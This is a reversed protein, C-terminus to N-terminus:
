GLKEYCGKKLSDSGNRVRAGNILAARSIALDFYVTGSVSSDLVREKKHDKQTDKELMTIIYNLESKPNRGEAGDHRITQSMIKETKGGRMCEEHTTKVSPRTTFSCEQDYRGSNGISLM